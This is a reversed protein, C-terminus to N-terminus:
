DVKFDSSLLKDDKFILSAVVVSNRFGVVFMTATRVTCGEFTLVHAEYCRNEEEHWKCPIQLTVAKLHVSMERFCVGRRLM